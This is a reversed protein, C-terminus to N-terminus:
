SLSAVFKAFRDMGQNIQDESCAFSIRLHNRGCGGFDEGPVFAVHAEDLLAESCSLASDIKVGKPTTKGFLGSVDPFVYFAGQPKVCSVGPIDALRTMILDARRAFAQRMSEVEGAVGRDTLACRIAAYNFSTINTSMQGQLTAMANIFKKGFDGPMGAYGIRWGTMAYAKSMGNLTLTREAIEPVSGISFHPTDAYVIKEYIEDTLVVLDPAIDRTEHVVQAITRLDAEPYMTGLPNSPSNLILLRSRPTIAKRLQEPDLRFNTAPTTELEVVRGGAMECIPAYSVWAPVPLLMEWPQEGPAPPDFLCHVATYLVHKGGAGIAIHHGTLGPISNEDTLKRAVTERTAMDGMTPTYKTEGALLADIAAQKITRPTDFDPEGAAFGLVDVGSAKLSKARNNLAVTVSPKLSTVRRALAPDAHTTPM